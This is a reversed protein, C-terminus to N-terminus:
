QGDAKLYLYTFGVGIGAGSNKDAIPQLLISGGNKQIPAGGGASLGFSVGGGVGSYKGVLQHIGPRFHKAIVSYKINKRNDISVDIGLGIGTEGKYREISGGGTPIFKCRVSKTSHILLDIGSHPMIKCTLTGVINLAGMNEGIPTNVKDALANGGPFLLATLCIGALTRNMTKGEAVMAAM